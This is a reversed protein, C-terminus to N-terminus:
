EKDSAKKKRVTVRKKAPVGNIREKKKTEKKIPKKAVKEKKPKTKKEEKEEKEKKVEKKAKKPEKVPKEKLPKPAKPAKSVKQKKPKEVEEGDKEKSKKAPLEDDFPENEDFSSYSYVARTSTRKPKQKTKAAAKKKMSDPASIGMLHLSTRLVTQVTKILYLRARSLEQSNENLITCKTYYKHLLGAFELTFTTLRHPERNEAAEVLVEPFHIMMKILALEEETKLRKLEKVNFNSLDIKAKKAKKFISSIRAHAYQCYYVPNESSEQVALDLDFNLHASPKRDIFFYRAADKGVEDILEDMTVIKGTRKSMKVKEGKDFLNVMQLFVIELKNEDYNLARMAAKLRPVYGHHDPGLVDILVDYGRQYKTLHYAIDPVIYTISGDGKMLVRDKEDGFKSSYFWVADDKEYTCGAESLYSLVEEVIGEERLARESFWNDFEVDFRDLSEMQMRNIEDLAFRKLKELRDKEAMHVLKTGEVTKLLIAIETVYEGQYAEVPFDGINEGLLERYRLELSEALIDVQNGADNVYFERKAEFGVHTMIRFLSDGYAAARANVVNLPGTPNASVFEILVKKGKGFNSKGYNNGASYIDILEKKMVSDAMRFNIFGPGAIEISHYEKKKTMEEILKEAMERPSLQNMKASVLAINSSYDGHQPNNPIEVVFKDNVSFGLTKTCEKLDNLIINKIM